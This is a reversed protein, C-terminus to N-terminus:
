GVACLVRLIVRIATEGYDLIQPLKSWFVIAPTALPNRENSNKGEIESVMREVQLRLRLASIVPLPLLTQLRGCCNVLKGVM